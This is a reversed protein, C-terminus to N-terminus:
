VAHLLASVPTPAVMAAPLWRHFPMVAAKGIGFVFLTLLVSLIAPSAAEGFVGGTQFDLSGAYLWTGAIAPILFVISTGLLIALYTRGGQRAKNTGAHAVLPYTGLTVIEYYIFLTFLNQSFAIGMVAAIAIAFFLYFRTQNDEKHARMYGIAYLITVPWLLSAILGFLMGLPQIEFSLSLGPLIELWTFAIQEPGNLYLNLLLLFQVVGAVLSVAERLNPQSRFLLIGIAALLPLLMVLHLTTVATM